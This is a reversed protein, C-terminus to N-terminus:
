TPPEVGGKVVLKLCKPADDATLKEPTGFFIGLLERGVLARSMRLTADLGWSNLSVNVVLCVIRCNDFEYGGSCNIRDVSAKMPDRRAESALRLEMGSISCKGNTSLLLHKLQSKSMVACRRQRGRDVLSAHMRDIWGRSDASNLEVETRWEELIFGRTTALYDDRFKVAQSFDRTRTSVRHERGDDNFRMWWTEGRKFLNISNM